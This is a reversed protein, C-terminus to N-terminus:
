GGRFGGFPNAPPRAGGGAGGNGQGNGGTRNAAPTANAISTIIEEGGKLGSTIETFTGDTIGLGVRVPTPKGNELVLVLGANREFAGGGAFGGNGAGGNAAGGNGARSGAPSNGGSGGSGARGAAANGNRAGAGNAAGAGTPTGTRAPREFTVLGDRLATQALSLSANPVRVVGTRQNTVVTATATMGPFLTANKQSTISCTVSYNVVNQVTTGLPQITLVKGTFTTTPYANVSFNVPDGVKVQGIDAENVLATVKLDNLDVLTFLASDGVAVPGGSVYQGATGNIAGLTADVPATLTAADYNAQATTLASQANLVQAKASAVDAADPAATSQDYSAQASALSQQAQQAQQQASQVSADAKHQAQTVATQANALANEAQKVQDQASVVAAALKAKDNDLTTKAQDLQTQAQDIQQKGQIQGQVLAQQADNVGLEANAISANAAECSAGGGHSCTSDRSIQASWLSTKAKEVDSELNPLNAAVTQKVTDLNKQATTIATQDAAIGRTQSDQASQLNHQASTLSQQASKVSAQANTLDDAVSTKTTAVSAQSNAANLKATNLSAQAIAKQDDTPGRQVKTLNAQAQDLNAQAQSLATKLDTTDLVALVQGAKVQDGVNVKLEALKGSTKFTLPVNDVAAIPGTATVTVTVNGARAPSTQYSPAARSLGPILPAARALVGTVDLLALLAAIVVVGIGIRLAKSPHRQPIVTARAM